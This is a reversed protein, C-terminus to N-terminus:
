REEKTKTKKDAKPDKCGCTCVGSFVGNNDHFQLDFSSLPHHYIMIDHGCNACKNNLHNGTDKTLSPVDSGMGNNMDANM